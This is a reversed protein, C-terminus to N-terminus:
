VVQLGSVSLTALIKDVAADEVGRDGPSCNYTVFLAQGGNRLYWERWFADETGFAITFGVFDGCQVLSPTAGADLHEAAFERLDAESVESDKFAASVQLAGIEPNAVITACEPDHWGQWGDPLLLSWTGRGFLQEM